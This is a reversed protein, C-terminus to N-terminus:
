GQLLQEHNGRDHQHRNKEDTQDQAAAVSTFGGAASQDLTTVFREEHGLGRDFREEVSL